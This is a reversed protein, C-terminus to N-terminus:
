HLTHLRDHACKILGNNSAVDCRCCMLQKCTIEAQVTFSAENTSIWCCLTISHFKAYLNHKSFITFCAIFQFQLPKLANLFGSAYFTSKDSLSIAFFANCGRTPLIFAIYSRKFWHRINLQNWCFGCSSRKACIATGLVAKRRHHNGNNM